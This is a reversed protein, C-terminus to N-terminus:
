PTGHFFMELGIREGGRVRSVAHRLQVRYHGQSGKFPREATAIVALDGLKLPLVAVRSQMRPRQETTVFEGGRFDSGPESLVAVIQLPFVPEGALSQHLPVHEEPGLRSLRCPAWAPGARQSDRLFDQLEAPYRHSAGLTQNWRNAIPVLRRYLARRWPELERTAQGAGPAGCARALRRALDAGLLGPLLAQGEADLQSGIEVWDLRDLAADPSGPPPSQTM